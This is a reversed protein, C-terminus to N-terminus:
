NIKGTLLPNSNTTLRNTGGNIGFWGESTIIDLEKM